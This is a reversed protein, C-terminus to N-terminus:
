KCWKKKYEAIFLKDFNTTYGCKPCVFQEGDFSTRPNNCYKSVSRCYPSYGPDDMLNNQILSRHFSGWYTSDHVPYMNIQLTMHMVKLVNTLHDLTILHKVKEFIEKTPFPHISTNLFDLIAKKLDKEKKNHLKRRNINIKIM